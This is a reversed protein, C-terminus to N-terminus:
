ARWREQWGQPREFGVVELIEIAAEVRGFPPMIYVGAIREKFDALAEQAIKVGEARAAPGKGVGEMRDRISQPVTMGPVEHHLFEANKYSALPLLGILTPMELHATDNLFREVMEPDYVPQTMIFEAGAAKKEELRRLERDYDTAAPEFGCAMLFRTCEKLPRGSPDVGRNFGDVLRLLGISDLDFVATADPYDGVKPPDGTIIVVNHNGLIYHGLIESQMALFNRDRCCVHLITDIGVERQIQVALSSNSMRVSARANDPINVVDVGAAKLMRAREIARAPNLGVPPNIEVSVAFQGAALKRGLPSKEAMPWPTLGPAKEEATVESQVVQLRGGGTMRVSGAMQAVHEPGTGCCGGVIRVGLKLFHMAYVGFYEPTAMYLYREGVKKPYGANPQISIAVGRGVMRKAVEYLTAPGESCNAGVVNAGWSSLMEVVKEAPTGDGVKGEDDFTMQAILPVDPALERAAEIALKMEELHTFTEVCILDVGEDALAAIQDSFAAKIEVKKDDSLVGPTLGSPGVAGAVYRDPGAAERALKVAARNIKAVQDELGAQRLKFTNAGFTNTEICEAGAAVYAKHVSRILEPDSLNTADFNRNIFIGRKYLETGMAGDFLLPGQEIRDLFPLRKAM